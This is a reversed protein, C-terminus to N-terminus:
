DFIRELETQLWSLAEDASWEGRMCRDYAENIPPNVEVEYVMYEPPRVVHITEAWGPAAAFEESHIVADVEPNVAIFSPSMFFWGTKYIMKQVDYRQLWKIFKAAEEPHHASKPVIYGYGGTGDHSVRMGNPAKPIGVIGVNGFVEPAVENPDFFAPWTFTFQEHMALKGQKFLALGDFKGMGEWGPPAFKSLEKQYELAEKWADKYVTNVAVNGDEDLVGHQGCLSEMKPMFEGWTVDWGVGGCIWTGYLDPPRTFFEAADLMKQWTDPPALEYEYKQMFAAKEEPDNFLDKRYYLVQSDIHTCPWSMIKGTEPDKRTTIDIDKSINERYGSDVGGLDEISYLSGLKIGKSLGWGSDWIIDYRGTLEAVERSVLEEWVNRPLTDIIIEVNPNENEYMSFLGIDILALTDPSSEGLIVLTIKEKKEGMTVLYIGVITAIAIALVVLVSIERKKM